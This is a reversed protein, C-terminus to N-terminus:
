RKKYRVYLEQNPENGGLTFTAPPGVPSGSGDTLQVEWLGAAAVTPFEVKMNQFRQRVDAIPWTFGPQGGFSAGSVPLDAGDKKVKVTYGDLAKEGDYVYLFIRVLRPESFQEASVLEFAFEPAPPPQAPETAPEPVPPQTAVAAPPQTPAPAPTNTPPAQTTEERIPALESAGDVDVLESIIWAPQDDVCCFQWWDGAVNRGIIEYERGREVTALVTYTTGPGTRVNALPANVVLRPQAQAATPTDATTDAPAPPTDTPPNNEVPVNNAIPTSLLEIPPQETQALGVPTPTFTPYPSRIPQYPEAASSSTRGLACSTTLLLCLLSCVLLSCKGVIRSTCVSCDM